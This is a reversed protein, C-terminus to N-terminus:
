IIARVVAGHEATLFRRNTIAVLGDAGIMNQGGHPGGSVGTSEVDTFKDFGDGVLVSGSLSRQFDGFDALPGAVVFVHQGVANAAPHPYFFVALLNGDVYEQDSPFIPDGTFTPGM